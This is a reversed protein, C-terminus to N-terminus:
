RNVDIIVNVQQIAGALKIAVQIPPAIRAERDAQSQLAIPQAYIYYGTKLFSGTTLQGFTATSTWTGPAVIGNTVAQACVQSIANVLQNMGQDTQPIKTPSTYLLNYCANQVADQLWDTDHIEDFWAPGSMVGYQIINTNNVYQTFVNCRKSQLTNAQTTTLNEAAVSPEQKFMMTIVTNNGTFDVTFARGFYSAIAYQNLSYQCFSRLYGAAMQRSALDTTNSSDLVGPDIITVGYIRRIDVAEIFSSVAISQDDTPQVSASFMLGYWLTSMDSLISACQVPTEAAYGSVLRAGTAATLKLIASIDTGSSSSQAFSIASSTGTSSSTITFKSGDWTCTAGTLGATVITAVGNLNTAGSFNLSAITYLTGDVSIKFSGNTIVTFNSLMQQTATLVGGINLGASATRIWRGIMLTTPTPSQGFYLQAAYYEPASTGFDLAVGSISSYTRFRQSGDIVNSDGAIMLVGFSRTPAALPSLNVIVNVLRSVPLSM